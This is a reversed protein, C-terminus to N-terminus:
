RVTTSNSLWSVERHHTQGSWGSASHSSLYSQNWKHNLLFRSFYIQIHLSRQQMICFSRLFDDLSRTFCDSSIYKLFRLIYCKINSFKLSDYLNNFLRRYSSVFFSYVNIQLNLLPHINYKIDFKLKGLVLFSLNYFQSIGILLRKFNSKSFMVM